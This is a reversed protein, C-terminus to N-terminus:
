ASRIQWRTATMRTSVSCAKTDVYGLVRMDRRLDADSFSSNKGKETVGWFSLRGIKSLVQVLDERRSLEAVAVAANGIDQTVKGELAAALDQDKIVGVVFAKRGSGIGLKESVTPVPKALAKAWLAAEKAGLSAVLTDEQLALILDDGQVVFDLIAARSIVARIEGRCILEDAELLLRTQGKQGRFSIQAQAQRGM